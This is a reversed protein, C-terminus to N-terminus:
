VCFPQFCRRVLFMEDTFEKFTLVKLNLQKRISKFLEWKDFFPELLFYKSDEAQEEKEFDEIWNSEAYFNPLFFIYATDDNTCKTWHKNFNLISSLFLKFWNKLHTAIFSKIESYKKPFQVNWIKLYKERIIECFYENIQALIATSAGRIHDTIELIIEFTFWTVKYVFWKKEFNKFSTDIPLDNM